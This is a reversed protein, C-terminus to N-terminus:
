VEFWFNLCPLKWYNTDIYEFIISQINVKHKDDYYKSISKLLTHIAKLKLGVEANDNGILESVM